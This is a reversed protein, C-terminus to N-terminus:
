VPVQIYVSIGTHAHIHTYLHIYFHTIAQIGTATYFQNAIALSQNIQATTVSGTGDSRRIVHIKLPLYVTSTTNQRVVHHKKSDLAIFNYDSFTPTFTGCNLQGFSNQTTLFYLLIILLKLFKM